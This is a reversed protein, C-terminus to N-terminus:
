ETRLSKVPNALSVRVSQVSVTIMTIIFALAITGLFIWISIPTRYDYRQLWNHMFWFSLPLAIM